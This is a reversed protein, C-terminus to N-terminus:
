NRKKPTSNPKILVSVGIAWAISASWGAVIDSPYHVGLYLRTWAIALVFLSGITLVLWRWRSSWTLIVLAAVLTMSSMAHGSPFGYDFEPAPSPWLHPRVRHLLIKATRNIIISGGLTVLFYVLKRWQRRVLLALGVVVAVPFVGWFVGLKTLNSAFIDLQPNATSHIALLIPVDWPFGGEKEWVDEALEGFVHLPFFVGILLLLLSKRHTIILRKFVGFFSQLSKWLKTKFM